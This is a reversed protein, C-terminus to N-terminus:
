GYEMLIVYWTGVDKEMRGMVKLLFYNEMDWV